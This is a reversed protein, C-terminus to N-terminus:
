RRENVWDANMQTGMRALRYIMWGVVVLGWWLPLNLANPLVANWVAAINEPAAAWPRLTALNLDHGWSFAIHMIQNRISLFLLGYVIAVRLPSGTHAGPGVRLDAGVTEIGFGVAVFWLGLFPTLYRGDNTYPNFTTSTSFLLLMAAFVGIILAFERRSRQWLGRLGALGLLSVPALWFLGQNDYGYFLMAPLGVWIPTAFDAFLSANQPWRTTDAHFTSLQLPGGFNVTNYWMLLAAPILGGIVFWFVRQVAVGRREGRVVLGGFLGVVWYVGAVVGFVINTYEMLVSVGLLLGLWFDRSVTVRLGSPAFPREGTSRSAEGSQAEAHRSGSWKLMLAVAAMVALGSAAHSYLLSGYKWTMTGFAFALASWVSTWEAMGFHARLIWFLIIAMTSAATVPIVIAYVVRPNDPDHKSHLTVLPKPLFASLAYVPASLIATGPPRDSFRLDGNLAYDQNETVDLYESIEFSRKDVLARVLAYHSGDNSSTIGAVTAFYVSSIIVFLLAATRWDRESM